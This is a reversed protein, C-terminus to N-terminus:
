SLRLRADPPASTRRFRDTSSHWFIIASAASSTLASSRTNRAYRYLTFWVTPPRIMCDPARVVLERRADQSIRCTAAGLTGWKSRCSESAGPPAGRWRDLANAAEEGHSPQGGPQGGVRCHQQQYPAGQPLPRWLERPDRCQQRHLLVPPASEVFRGYTSRIRGVRSM